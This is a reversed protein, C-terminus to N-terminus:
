CLSPCVASIEGDDIGRDMGVAGDNNRGAQGVKYEDRARRRGEIHCRYLRVKIKPTYAPVGSFETM